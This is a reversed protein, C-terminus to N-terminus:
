NWEKERRAIDRRKASDMEITDDPQALALALFIFGAVALIIGVIIEANTPEMQILEKGKQTKITDCKQLNTL